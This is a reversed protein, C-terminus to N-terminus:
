NGNPNCSEDVGDTLDVFRFYTDVKSAIGYSWAAVNYLPNLYPITSEALVVGFWLKGFMWKQSATATAYLEPGMLARVMHVNLAVLLIDRSIGGLFQSMEYIEPVNGNEDAYFSKFPDWFPIFGDLTAYTGKSYSDAFLEIM